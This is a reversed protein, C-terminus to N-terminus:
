RRRWLVVGLLALLAYTWPDSILATAVRRFDDPDKEAARMAYFITKLLQSGGVMAVMVAWLEGRRSPKVAQKAPQGVSPKDRRNALLEQAIRQAEPTYQGEPANAIARLEDTPLDKYRERVRALDVEM